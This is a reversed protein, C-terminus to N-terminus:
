RGTVQLKCSRSWGRPRSPRRTTASRTASGVLTNSTNLRTDAQVQLSFMLGDCMRMDQSVHVPQALVVARTIKWEVTNSDVFTPNQLLICAGTIAACAKDFLYVVRPLKNKAVIIHVARLAPNAM